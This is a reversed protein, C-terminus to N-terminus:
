FYSRQDGQKTEVGEDSLTAGQNNHSAMKPNSSTDLQCFPPAGFIIDFDKKEEFVKKKNQCTSGFLHVNSHFKYDIKL